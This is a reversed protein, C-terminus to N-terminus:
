QWATSYPRGSMENFHSCCIWFMHAHETSLLDNLSLAVFHRAVSCQSGIFCHMLNLIHTSVHSDSCWIPGFYWWSMSWYLGILWLSWEELSEHKSSIGHVFCLWLDCLDKMTESGVMHFVRRNSILYASMAKLMVELSMQILLMQDLPMQTIFLNISM